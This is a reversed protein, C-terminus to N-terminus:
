TRGHIDESRNSSTSRASGGLGDPVTAFLQQNWRLAGFLQPTFKYKGELYYAFTDADGVRPVQFAKCKLHNAHGSDFALRALPAFATREASPAFGEERRSDIPPRRNCNGRFVGEDKEARSLLGGGEAPLM